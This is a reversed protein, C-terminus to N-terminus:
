KIALDYDIAQLQGNKRNFIFAWSNKTARPSTALSIMEVKDMDPGTLQNQEYSNPFLQKFDKITTTHGFKYKSTVLYLGPAKRFDIGNFVLTDNYKEFLIAKYNCFQFKRPYFSGNVDDGATISDPKGLINIVVKFDSIMPISGNIKVSDWDLYEKNIASDTKITAKSQTHRPSHCAVALLSFSIITFRSRMIIQM